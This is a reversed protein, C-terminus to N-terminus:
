ARPAGRLPVPRGHGLVTTAMSVESVDRLVRPRLALRAWAAQADAVSHEDDAGGAVYDYVGRDLRERAADELATLDLPDLPDRM